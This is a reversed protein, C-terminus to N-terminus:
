SQLVKSLDSQTVWQSLGDLLLFINDLPIARTATLIVQMIVGRDCITVCYESTIM